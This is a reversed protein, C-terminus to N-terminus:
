KINVITDCYSCTVEDGKAGRLEAGCGPCKIVRIAPPKPKPTVASKASKFTDKLPSIMEGVSLKVKETKRQERICDKYAKEIANAWKKETFLGQFSYDLNYFDFYLELRTKGNPAKGILINPKGNHEKLDLLPYKEADKDGGFLGKNIQIISQNTLILTIPSGKASVKTDKMLIVEDEDLIYVSM